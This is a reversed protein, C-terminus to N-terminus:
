SRPAVLKALIRGIMLYVLAALGWNVIADKTTAADIAAHKHSAPAFHFIGNQRNFPGDIADAFGKIFRVLGNTESVDHRLAVLLAGLALMVAFLSFVAVIVRALKARVAALELRHEREQEPFPQDTTVRPAV